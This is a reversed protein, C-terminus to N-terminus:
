QSLRELKIDEPSSVSLNLERMLRAFQVMAQAEIVCAPNARVQGFRDKFTIGGKLIAEQAQHARDFARAALIMLMGQHPELVYKQEVFDIWAQTSKRLAPETKKKKVKKRAM